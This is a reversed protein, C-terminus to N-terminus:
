KMKAKLEAEYKQKLLSEGQLKDSDKIKLESALNDREKEIKAVAETVALTKETQVSGLKAKLQTIEIESESKSAALASEKEAKLKAIEVDKQTLADKSANKTKEEALKIASEKDLALLRERERLEEAFEHDRVQKVIDAFGAEDIKFAKKCNPCIIENM